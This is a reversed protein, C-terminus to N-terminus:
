LSTIVRLVGAAIDPLERHRDALQPAVSHSFIFEAPKNAAAIDLVGVFNRGCAILAREVM